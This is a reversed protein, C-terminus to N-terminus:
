PGSVSCSHSHAYSDAAQPQPAICRTAFKFLNNNYLCLRCFSCGRETEARYDSSGIVILCRGEILVIRPLVSFM